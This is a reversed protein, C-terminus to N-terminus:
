IEHNHWQESKPPARAKDRRSKEVVRESTNRDTLLDLNDCPGHVGRGQIEDVEGSHLKEEM